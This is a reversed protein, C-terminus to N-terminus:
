NEAPRDRSPSRMARSCGPAVNARRTRAVVDRARLPEGQELAPERLKGSTAQARVRYEAIVIM